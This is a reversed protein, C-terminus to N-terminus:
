TLHCGNVGRTGARPTNGGLIAGRGSTAVPIGFEQWLEVIDPGDDIAARVEYAPALQSYIERKIHTNSRSRKDAERALDDIYKLSQDVARDDICLPRLRSCLRNPSHSRAPRPRDNGKSETHTRSM